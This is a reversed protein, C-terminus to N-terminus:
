AKPAEPEMLETRYVTVSPPAEIGLKVEGDRSRVVTIRIDGIQLSESDRRTLVLM